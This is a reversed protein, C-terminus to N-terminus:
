CAEGLKKMEKTSHGRKGDYNTPYKGYMWTCNECNYTKLYEDKCLKCIQKM